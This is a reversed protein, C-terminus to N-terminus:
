GEKYLLIGTFDTYLDNNRSQTILAFLEEQTMHRSAISTYALPFQKQSGM